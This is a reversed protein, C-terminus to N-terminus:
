FSSLMCTVTVFVLLVCLTLLRYVQLALNLQFWLWRTEFCLVVRSLNCRQQMNMAPSCLTLFLCMSSFLWKWLEGGGRVVVPPPETSSHNAHWVWARFLVPEFRLRSVTQTATKPLSNVGMTGLYVWGQMGEPDSFRTGAEAPPFAPFDGRGPPLYCQTIGYPLHNGTATHHLKV